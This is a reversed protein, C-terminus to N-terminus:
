LVLDGSPISKSSWGPKPRVTAWPIRWLKPCVIEISDVRPSDVVTKTCKVGLALQFGRIRCVKCFVDLRSSFLSNRDDERRNRPRPHYDPLGENVIRGAVSPAALRHGSRARRSARRRPRLSSSTLRASRYWSQPQTLGILGNALSPPSTRAARDQGLPVIGQHENRSPIAPTRCGM